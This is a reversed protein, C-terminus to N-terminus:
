RSNSSDQVSDMNTQSVAFPSARFGEFDSDIMKKLGCEFGCCSRTLLKLQMVTAPVLTVTEAYFVQTNGYRLYGAIKQCDPRLRKCTM